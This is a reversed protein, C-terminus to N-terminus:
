GQTGAALLDAEPLSERVYFWSEMSGTESWTKRQFIWRAWESLSADGYNPVWWVRHSFQHGVYGELLKKSRERDSDLIFLADVEKPDFAGTSLDAYGVNPTERLYWAWPWSAGNASDVWVTLHEGTREFASEDIAKFEKLSDVLGQGTQTYLILERPDAANRYVATAGAVLLYISAVGVLGIRLRARKTWLDEIARGAIVILPLLSHLVLWPM